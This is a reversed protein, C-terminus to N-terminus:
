LAHETRCFHLPICTLTQTTFLHKLVSRSQLMKLIYYTLKKFSQPDNYTPEEKIKHYSPLFNPVRYILGSPM